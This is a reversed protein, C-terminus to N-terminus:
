DKRLLAVLGTIDDADDLGHVADCIAQARGAPLDPGYQDLLEALKADPVRAGPTGLFHDIAHTETSGDTFTVTMGCGEFTARAPDASLVIRDGLAIVAEDTYCEAQTEATTFRGRLWAAAVCHCLDFTAQPTSSPRGFRERRGAVIKVVIEQVSLDIREVERGAARPLIALACEVPGHTITETPVVKYTQGLIAWEGGLSEIVGAIKARDEDCHTAFM